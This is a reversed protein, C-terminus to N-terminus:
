GHHWWIRIRTVILWVLSLFCVAPAIISPEPNPSSSAMFVWLLSVVLLTMSIASHAKLRKATGQTTTLPTKLAAVDSASSIPCGCNVCAPARDSVNTGCDPCKVLAM